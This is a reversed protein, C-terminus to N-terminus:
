QPVSFSAAGEAIVVPQVFYETNEAIAPLAAEQELCPEGIELLRVLLPGFRRFVM